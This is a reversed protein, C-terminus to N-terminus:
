RSLERRRRMRSRWEIVGFVLLLASAILNLVVLLAPMVDGTAPNFARRVIPEALQGLTFVFGAVTLGVVGVMGIWGRGFLLVTLIVQGVLFPLPASLATGDWGLFGKLVDDGTV